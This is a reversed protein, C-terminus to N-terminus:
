VCTQSKRQVPHGEMNSMKWKIKPYWCHFGQPVKINQIIKIQFEQPSRLFINKVQFNYKLYEIRM